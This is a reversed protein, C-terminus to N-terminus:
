RGTAARPVPHVRVDGIRGDQRDMVLTGDRRGEAFRVLEALDEPALAQALRTALAMRDLTPLPVAEDAEGPAPAV